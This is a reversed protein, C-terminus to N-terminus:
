VGSWVSRRLGFLYLACLIAECSWRWALVMIRGTLAWNVKSFERNRTLANRSFRGGDGTTEVTDPGQDKLNVRWDRKTGTIKLLAVKDPSLWQMM